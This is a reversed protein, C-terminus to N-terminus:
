RGPDSQHSSETISNVMTNPLMMINSWASLMVRVVKSHGMLPLIWLLVTKEGRPQNVKVGSFLLLQTVGLNGGQVTLFLATAGDYIQEHISAGHKLLTGVVQIHGYQSILLAACRGKTRVETSAGFEFLFRMAVNYGQQAAFFLATKCSQLNIDVGQLILEIVGGIHGAYSTVMLLIIGYSNRCDGDVWSSNLLLRLLVLNARRVVWFTGKAFSTEKKSSMRCM